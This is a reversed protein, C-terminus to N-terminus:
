LWIANTFIICAVLGTIPTTPFIGLGTGGATVIYGAAMVAAVGAYIRKRNKAYPKTFDHHEIM